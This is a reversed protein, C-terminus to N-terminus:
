DLSIRERKFPEFLVRGIGPERVGDYITVAPDEGGWWNDPAKVDEDNFDGIKINYSSNRFNSGTINLGSGKERVFIGIENDTFDSESIQAIGKFSRIGIGNSTFTCRSITLPGGRFRIGGEGNRFTCATLNLRTDHSQIGWTANEIICHEMTSDSASELRIEDWSGRSGTKTSTFVIEQGKRGFARLAGRVLLGSGKAFHIRSGPRIELTKGKPVTYTKNVQVTGQWVISKSKGSIGGAAQAAEALIFVLILITGRAFLRM